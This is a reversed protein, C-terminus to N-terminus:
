TLRSSPRDDQLTGEADVHLLSGWATLGDSLGVRGRDEGGQMTHASCALGRM